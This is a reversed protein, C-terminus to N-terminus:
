ATKKTPKVREFGLKEIADRYKHLRREMRIGMKHGKRILKRITKMDAASITTYRDGSPSAWIPRHRTMRDLETFQDCLTEHYEPKMGM